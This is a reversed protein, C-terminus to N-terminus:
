LEPPDYFVRVWWLPFHRRIIENVDEQSNPYTEYTIKSKFYNRHNHPHWMWFINRKVAAERLAIYVMKKTYTTQPTQANRDDIGREKYFSELLQGTKCVLEPPPQRDRDPADDISKRMWETDGSACYIRKAAGHWAVITDKTVYTKSSAIFFYNACASLCYDYVVVIANQERLINSLIIAIPAFGGPSRIVFLGDRKLENFASVDRDATIPGDFCLVTRDESLKITTSHARCYSIASSIRDLESHAASNLAFAVAFAIGLTWSWIDPGRTRNRGPLVAVLSELGCGLTPRNM